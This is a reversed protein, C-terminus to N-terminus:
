TIVIVLYNNLTPDANYCAIFHYNDKVRGCVGILNAANASVFSFYKPLEHLQM